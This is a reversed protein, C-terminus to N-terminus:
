GVCTIYYINFEIYLAKVQEDNTSAYEKTFIM